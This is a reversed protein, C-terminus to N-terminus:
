DTSQETVMELDITPQTIKPRPEIVEREPCILHVWTKIVGYIACCVYQLWFLLVLSGAIALVYITYSNSRECEHTQFDGPADLAPPDDHLWSLVCTHIKTTGDTWDELKAMASDHNSFRKQYTEHYTHQYADFHYDITLYHNDTLDVADVTPEYKSDIWHTMYYTNMTLYMLLGYTLVTVHSYVPDHLFRTNPNNNNAYDNLLDDHVVGIWVIWSISFIISAFVLATKIGANSCTSDVYITNSDSNICKQAFELQYNDDNIAPETFLWSHHCIYAVTEQNRWNCKISRYKDSNNSDTHYSYHHYNWHNHYKFKYDVELDYCTKSTYECSQQVFGSGDCCTQNSPNDLDDLNSCSPITEDCGSVYCNLDYCTSETIEMNETVVPQYRFVHAYFVSLCWYNIFLFLVLWCFFKRYPLPNM